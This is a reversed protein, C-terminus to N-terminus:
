LHVVNWPVWVQESSIQMLLNISSWEMEGSQVITLKLLHSTTQTQLSQSM